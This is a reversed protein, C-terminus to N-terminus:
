FPIEDPDFPDDAFGMEEPPTIEIYLKVVRQRKSDVRFWIRFSPTVDSGVIRLKTKALYLNQYGPILSFGTPNRSLSYDVQETISDIYEAGGCYQVSLAYTEEEVVEWGQNNGATSM